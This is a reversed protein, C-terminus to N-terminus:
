AVEHPFRTGPIRNFETDDPIALSLRNFDCKARPLLEFDIQLVMRISTQVSCLVMYMQLHLLMSAVRTTHISEARDSGSYRWRVPFGVSENTPDPSAVFCSCCIAAREPGAFSTTHGCQEVCHVHDTQEDQPDPPAASASTCGFPRTVHRSHEVSCVTSSRWIVGSSSSYKPLHSDLPIM